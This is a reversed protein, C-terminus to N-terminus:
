RKFFLACLERRTAEYANTCGEEAGVTDVQIVNLYYEVNVNGFLM